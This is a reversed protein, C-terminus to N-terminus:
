AGTAARPNPTCSNDQLAQRWHPYARTRKDGPWADHGESHWQKHLGLQWWSRGKRWEGKNWWQCGKGEEWVYYWVSVYYWRRWYTGGNWWKQRKYGGSSM